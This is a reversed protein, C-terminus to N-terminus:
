ICFCVFVSLSVCFCCFMSLIEQKNYNRTCGAKNTILSTFIRQSFPSQYAIAYVRGRYIGLIDITVPRTVEYDDAFRRRCLLPALRVVCQLLHLAPNIPARHARAGSIGGVSHGLSNWNKHAVALLMFFPFPTSAGGSINSPPWQVPTQTGVGGYLALKPKATMAFGWLSSGMVTTKKFKWYEWLFGFIVSGKSM